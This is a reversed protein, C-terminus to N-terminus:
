RAERSITPGRSGDQRTAASERDFAPGEAERRMASAAAARNLRPGAHAQDPVIPPTEDYAIGVSMEVVFAFTVTAESM